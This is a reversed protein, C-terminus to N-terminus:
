GPPPLDRAGSGCGEDAWFVHYAEDDRTGPPWVGTPCWKTNAPGGTVPLWDLGYLRPPRLIKVPGTMTGDGHPGPYAGAEVTAGARVMFETGPGYDAIFYINKRKGNVTVQVLPRTLMVLHDHKGPNTVTYNILIGGGSNPTIKPKGISIPTAKAREAFYQPETMHDRVEARLTDSTFEGHRILNGLATIGARAGAVLGMVLAVIVVLIMVMWTGTPIRDSRISGIRRGTSDYIDAVHSTFPDLDGM